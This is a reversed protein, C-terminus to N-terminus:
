APFYVARRLREASGSRQKGGAAGPEGLAARGSRLPHICHTRERSAAQLGTEELVNLRGGRSGSPVHLLQFTPVVDESRKEKGPSLQATWGVGKTAALWRLPQAGVRSNGLGRRKPVANQREFCSLRVPLATVPRPVDGPTGLGRPWSTQHGSRSQNCFSKHFAM